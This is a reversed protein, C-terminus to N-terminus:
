GPAAHAGNAPTLVRASSRAPPQVTASRHIRASWAFCTFPVIAPCMVPALGAFASGTTAGPVTRPGAHTASAVLPILILLITSRM